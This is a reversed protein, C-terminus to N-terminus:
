SESSELGGAPGNESGGTSLAPAAGPTGEAGKPGRPDYTSAKGTNRKPLKLVNADGVMQGDGLQKKLTLMSTTVNSLVTDFQRVAESESRLAESRSRAIAAMRESFLLQASNLVDVLSNLENMLQENQRDATERVSRLAEEIEAIM